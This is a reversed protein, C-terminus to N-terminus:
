FPLSVILEIIWSEYDCSLAIHIWLRTRKVDGLSVNNVYFKEVYHLSVLRDIGADLLSISFLFHCGFVRHGTKKGTSSHNSEPIDEIQLSFLLFRTFYQSSYKIQGGWVNKWLVKYRLLLIIYFHEFFRNHM